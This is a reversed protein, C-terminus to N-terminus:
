GFFARRGSVEPPQGGREFLRFREFFNRVDKQEIVQQQFGRNESLPQFVDCFFPPKNM